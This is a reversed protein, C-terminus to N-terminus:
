EVLGVLGLAKIYYDRGVEQWKGDIFAVCGDKEFIEFKDMPALHDFLNCYAESLNNMIEEQKEPPCYERKKCYIISKGDESRWTEEYHSKDMDMGRNVGANNIHKPKSQVARKKATAPM